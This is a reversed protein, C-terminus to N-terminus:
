GAQRGAGGAILLVLAVAQGRRLGALRQLDVEAQPGLGARGRGFLPGAGPKTPRSGADLLEPGDGADHAPRVALRRGADDDAPAVLRIGAAGLRLGVG